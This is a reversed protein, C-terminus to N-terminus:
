FDQFDILYIKWDVKGTSRTLRGRGRGAPLCAFGEGSTPPAKIFSKWKAPLMLNSELNSVKITM